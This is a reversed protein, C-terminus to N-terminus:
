RRLRELIAPLHVQDAKYNGTLAYMVLNIGVRYAIERQREGGPSVAFQPRGQGDTAWAGAWDSAGVVVPSVGDNAAAAGEEVWVGLDAARGPLDKLLYFSRTLVHDVPLPALPPLALGRTLAALLGAREAAAMLPDAADFVILGGHRMYASLREAAAASPPTQDATVPWYLLPFFVVPDAELDIGMPEALTATSRAAVLRSLAALGSRSKADVAAVGTRVYALRTALGAEIAFDDQAARASHALALILVLSVAAGGRLLGRLALAALLDLIAFAVAAALFYPALPIERGGGELGVRRLGAPLDLVMPRGVAAGLNLAVRSGGVGYFGPPHRPGPSPAAGEAALAIAAAGPAGLRGFGDLAEIPPLRGGGPGPMGEALQTLRHLMEPFLGSLALNSWEANATTHVLVLWGRGRREATVLPTGDALQAWTRAALELSPEALVQASVSVDAPVALGAFPGDPPFPALGQAVSWSMAGGLMRGGGLLRVPLFRDPEGDQAVAALTPGAFRVLVGGREIWAQLKDASAGRPAAADALMLVALDGALLDAVEGRRLEAVPELARTLYTLRDLLPSPSASAGGAALGVPRRRWRGDLLAVAGAAAEGEIDLRVLKNRLEPPLRLEAIAEAAGPALTVPARGLVRGAEDLGRVALTEAAEAAARRVTVSLRGPDADDGPPPLLHGPRGEAVTLPGLGKLARALEASGGDEIGDALWVAQAPRPLAAVARAAAARDVPWPKPELAALAERARAAPVLSASAVGGDAPPATGLLAVPRGSREVGALLDDAWAVRRRWDAAAAWGDDVVLVLPGGSTTAQGPNIAPGAAALILCAVLLMRLMLVLPPTRAAAEEGAELGFLLRVAPFRVKRPAPPVVRLLWWLGPLLALLGLVWPLGFGIM